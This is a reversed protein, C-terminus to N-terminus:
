IMPDLTSIDKYSPSSTSVAGIGSIEIPFLASEEALLEFSTESFLFFRLLHWCSLLSSGGGGGGWGGVVMVM